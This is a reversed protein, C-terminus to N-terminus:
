REAMISLLLYGWREGAREAGLPPSLSIAPAVQTGGGGQRATLGAARSRADRRM